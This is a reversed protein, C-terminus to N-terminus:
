NWDECVENEDVYKQKLVCYLRDEDDVFTNACNFCDPKVFDKKQLMIIEKRIKYNIIDFIEFNKLNFLGGHLGYM